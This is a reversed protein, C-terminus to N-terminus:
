KQTNGTVLERLLVGLLAVETVKTVVGYIEYSDHMLFYGVITIITYVVLGVAVLKNFTSLRVMPLGRLVAIVCYGAGNALLLLDGDRGVVLHLVGTYVTLVTASILM